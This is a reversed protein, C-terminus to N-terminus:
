HEPQGSVAVVVADRQRHKRLQRQGTVGDLVDHQLVRQEGGDLFRQELDNHGAGVQQRYQDDTRRQTVPVADVVGCDDNVATNHEPHHRLGVQGGVPLEVLVALDPGAVQLAAADPQTVGLSWETRIQQEGGGIQGAEHQM